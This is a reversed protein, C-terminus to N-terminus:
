EEIKMDEVSGIVEIWTIGANMAVEQDDENYFRLRETASPKRWTV